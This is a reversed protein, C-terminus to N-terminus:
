SGKQAVPVPVMPTDVTVPVAASQAQPMAQVPQQTQQPMPQQMQQPMAQARKMFEAAAKPDRLDVLPPVSPQQPQMPQQAPYGEPQPDQQGQPFYGGQGMQPAQPAQPDAYWGGAGPVPGYMERGWPSPAPGAPPQGTLWRKLEGQLHLEAYCAQELLMKNTAAASLAADLSAGLRLTADPGHPALAIALNQADIQLQGFGDDQRRLLERYTAYRNESQRILGLLVEAPAYHQPPPGGRYPQRPRVAQAPASAGTPGAPRPRNVRNM